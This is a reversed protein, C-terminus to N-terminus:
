KVGGDTAAPVIEAQSSAALASAIDLRTLEIDARKQAMLDHIFQSGGTLLIGTLINDSLPSYRLSMGFTEFLRVNLLFAMILAVPLAVYWPKQVPIFERIKATLVEVAWAAFGPTAIKLVEGTVAVATNNEM